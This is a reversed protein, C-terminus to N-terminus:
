EEGLSKKFAVSKPIVREVFKKGAIEVKVFEFVIKSSLLKELNKFIWVFLGEV